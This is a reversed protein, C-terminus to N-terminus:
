TSKFSNVLPNSRHYDTCSFHNRTGTMSIRKIVGWSVQSWYSQWYLSAQCLCPNLIKKGFRMFLVHFHILIPFGRWGALLAVAAVMRKKSNCCLQLMKIKGPVKGRLQWILILTSTSKNRHWTNKQIIYSEPTRTTRKPRKENSTRDLYHWKEKEKWWAETIGGSSDRPSRKMKAHENRIIQFKWRHLFQIDLPFLWHTIQLCSNTM